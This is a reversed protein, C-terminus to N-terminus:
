RFKVLQQVLRAFGIDNGGISVLLLDIERAYRKPCKRLMLGGKLVEIQGRMHYAEPYDKAPATRDACQAQAVASIQSLTPPNEVWENGEYRLFLGQTIEAGSCAFGAFTM